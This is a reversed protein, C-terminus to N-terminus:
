MPGSFVVNATSLAQILTSLLDNEQIPKTLYGNAGCAYARQISAADTLASVMIVAITDYIHNKRVTECVQFGNVHPLMIDLLVLHPVFARVSTLATLGDRAVYVQHGLQRLIGELKSVITPSDEM